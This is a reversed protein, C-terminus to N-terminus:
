SGPQTVKIAWNCATFIQLNFTGADYYHEVGSGSMGLQNPGNDNFDPSTGENVFYNFNGEYGVNACNYAWGLYWQGAVLGVTFQDTSEQGSGQLDLLVKPAMTTTTTPVTTTTTTVVTPATQIAAAAVTTATTSTTTSATNANKGLGAVRGIIQFLVILAVVVMGAIKLNRRM